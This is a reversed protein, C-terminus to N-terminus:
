NKIEVPYTEIQSISSTVKVSTTTSPKTCIETEFSLGENEIKM